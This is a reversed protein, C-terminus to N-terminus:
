VQRLNQNTYNSITRRNLFKLLTLCSFCIRLVVCLYVCMICLFVYMVVYLSCVTIYRDTGITVYIM